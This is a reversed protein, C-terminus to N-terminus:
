APGLLDNFDENCDQLEFYLEMLYEEYGIEEMTYGELLSQIEEIRLQLALGQFANMRIIYFYEATIIFQRKLIM